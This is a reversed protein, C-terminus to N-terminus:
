EAFGAATELHLRTLELNGRMSENMLQTASDFQQRAADARELRQNTMALFLLDYARPSQRFDNAKTLWQAASEYDGNRFHAIGVTAAFEASSSSRAFTEEAVEIARGPDRLEISPSNALTRAYRNAFSPSQTAIGSWLDRAKVLYTEALEAHKASDTEFLMAGARGCVDALSAKIQSDTGPSSSQRIEELLQESQQFLNLAVDVQNQRWAIQAMNGQTIALRHYYKTKKFQSGLEDFIQGANNSHVAADDVNGSDAMAQALSDLCAGLGEQYRAIVPNAEVLGVFQTASDELLTVAAVANGGELLLHAEDMKARAASERFRVIAPYSNSLQEYDARNMRVFNLAEEARGAIRLSKVLYSRADARLERYDREAPHASVLRDCHKVGATFFQEAASYEGRQFMSEGLLSRATSLGSFMASSDDGQATNLATNSEANLEIARGFGDIAERLRLEGAAFDGDELLLAGRQIDLTALAQRYDPRQTSRAILKEYTEASAQYWTTADQGLTRANTGLRLAANALEYAAQDGNDGSFAHPQLAAHAKEFSITASKWEGLDSQMDGLRLLTRGRELEITPDTSADALMADYEDAASQLLHARFEQVGPYDSLDAASGTLWSDITRQARVLNQKAELKSRNADRVALIAISTAALAALTALTAVVLGRRRRAFRFAAEVMSERHATVREDGLWSELDSALARASAYRDDAKISMAKLCIAELPPPIRPQVSRPLDFIGREIRELTALKDRVAPQSSRGTLLRYLIAGLSYIDSAPGIDDTDGSAQEPSMYGLTGVVTGFTTPASDTGEGDRIVPGEEVITPAAHDPALSDEEPSASSKKALGWDVLLTEGYAGLMINDPKLDRHLIGRHHAYHMTNCVDVLRRILSQLQLRAAPSKWTSEGFSEHFNAIEKKLTHGRIFRMAYFPRGSEDAGRAYVPVVGPHELRGTVEAEQEFRLRSQADDALRPQIRKLAVKRDLQQDQAVFVEGLGGRAHSYLEYFRDRARRAGSTAQSDGGQGLPEVARLLSSENLKTHTKSPRTTGAPNSASIPGSEPLLSETGASQSGEGLALEECMQELVRECRGCGEVHASLADAADVSLDDSLYSALLEPAPCESMSVICDSQSNTSDTHLIIPDRLSIM